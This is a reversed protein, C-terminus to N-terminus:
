EATFGIRRMKGHRKDLIKDMEASTFARVTTTQVNGAAGLDLLLASATEDDPAQFILVGDHDGLTWYIDTVKVGMKKGTAKLSSARKTTDDISKLGQQTFKITTIFTAM